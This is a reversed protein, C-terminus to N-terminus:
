RNNVQKTDVSKSRNILSDLVDPVFREAFGSIFSLILLKATEPPGFQACLFKNIFESNEPNCEMNFPKPLLDFINLWQSRSLLYVLVSFVAGSVILSIMYFKSMGEGIDASNSASDSFSTPTSSAQELRQILSIVAGTMGFLVMLLILHWSQGAKSHDTLSFIVIGCIFLIMFIWIPFKKKDNIALNRQMRYYNMRQMQRALNVADEKLMLLYDDAVGQKLSNDTLLDPLTNLYNKYVSDGALLRFKERIIWIRRLLEEKTLNKLIFIEMSWLQPLTAASFDPKSINVDYNSSFSNKGDNNLLLYDAEIGHKVEDLYASSPIM